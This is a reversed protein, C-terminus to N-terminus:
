LGETDVEVRARKSSRQAEGRNVVKGALSRTEIARRITHAVKKAILPPVARCVSEYQMEESGYFVFDDPFGQIRALERV